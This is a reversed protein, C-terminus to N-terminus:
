PASPTVMSGNSMGPDSEPVWDFWTKIHSSDLYRAFALGDWPIYAGSFDRAPYFQHDFARQSLQRRLKWSDVSFDQLIGRGTTDIALRASVLSPISEWTSSDPLPGSWDRKVIPPMMEGITDPVLHIRLRESTAVGEAPTSWVDTPYELDPLLAVVLFNSSAVPRNNVRMPEYKGWKVASYIQDTFKTNSARVLAVATARGLSDLDVHFLKYDYRNGVEANNTEYYYSPFSTVFAPQVSNAALAAWYRESRVVERNPGVPFLILPRPSVSGAQVELRLRMDSRAGDRVGPEFKLSKLYSVCVALASSDDPSEYDVGTVGGKRNVQLIVPVYHEVQRTCLSDAQWPAASVPVPLSLGFHTPRPQIPRTSDILLQVRPGGCGTWLGASLVLIAIGLRVRSM